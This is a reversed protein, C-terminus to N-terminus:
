ERSDRQSRGGHCGVGHSTPATAAAAVTTAAAVPAPAETAPAETGPAETGPAETATAAMHPAVEPAAAACMNAAPEGARMDAALSSHSDAAGAGEGGVM